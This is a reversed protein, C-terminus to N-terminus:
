RGLGKDRWTTVIRFREVFCSVPNLHVIASIEHAEAASYYHHHLVVLGGSIFNAQIAFAPSSQPDLIDPLPTFCEQILWTPPM